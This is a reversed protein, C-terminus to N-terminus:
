ELVYKKWDWFVPSKLTYKVGDKEFEPIINGSEDMYESYPVEITNQRYYSRGGIFTLPQRTSIVHLIRQLYGYYGGGMLSKNVFKHVCRCEGYYGNEKLWGTRGLCYDGIGDEMIEKTLNKYSTNLLVNYYISGDVIKIHYGIVSTDDPFYSLCKSIVEEPNLDYSRTFFLHLPLRDLFGPSYDAAMKDRIQNFESKSIRKYGSMPAFDMYDNIDESFSASDCLKRYITQFKSSPFQFDIWAEGCDHRDWYLDTVTCGLSRLYNKGSEMDGWHECDAVRYRGTITKSKKNEMDTYTKITIGNDRLVM